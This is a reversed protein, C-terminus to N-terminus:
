LRHQTCKLPNNERRKLRLPYLVGKLFSPKRDCYRNKPEDQPKESRDVENLCADIKGCLAFLMGRSSL